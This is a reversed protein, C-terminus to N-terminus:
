GVESISDIIKSLFVYQQKIRNNKQFYDKHRLFRTNLMEKIEIFRRKRTTESIVINNYVYLLVIFDYVFKHSINNRISTNGVCNLNKVFDIIRKDPAGDIVDSLRNILCNSHASANRLDRVINLFKRYEIESGYTQSYFDCLYTLDGFSIIEVFVWAPFYPYYKNILGKCYESAQHAHITKLVRENQAVFKRILQYGDDGFQEIGNLISLKINHEIDLCMELIKYRLHMDLTSLEKLYAFELNIYQGNSACELTQKDYNTRYAALKMYYNNNVLFDKAEQEDVITFKIGKGKMHDILQEPSLLQKM